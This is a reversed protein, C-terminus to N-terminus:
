VHCPNGERWDCDSQHTPAAPMPRGRAPRADQLIQSDAERRLFYIFIFEKYFIDGRRYYLRMGNEDIFGLGLVLKHIDM